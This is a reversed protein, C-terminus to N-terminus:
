IGQIGAFPFHPYKGLHYRFVRGPLAWKAAAKVGIGTPFFLLSSMLIIEAWVDRHSSQPPYVPRPGRGHDSIGIALGDNATVIGHRTGIVPAM